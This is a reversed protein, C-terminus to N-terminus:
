GVAEAQALPEPPTDSVNSLVQQLVGNDEAKRLLANTIMDGRQALLTDDPSLIHISVYKGLAANKRKEEIKEKGEETKQTVADKAEFVKQEVTEKAQVAKEKLRQLKDQNEPNSRAEDFKQKAASGVQKMKEKAQELLEPSKDKATAAAGALGQQQSQQQLQQEVSSRVITVDEGVKMIDAVAVRKRGSQVNKVAGQSVELEIVSGSSPDFYIDSVKGLETGSETMVKNQTLYNDDKVIRTIREEVDSAKKIVADSEVIVADAGITSIDDFLVVKADAFWGGSDVVFAKVKNEAPDYVLEDINEIIKGKQLTVVKLGIVDKGKYLQQNASPM